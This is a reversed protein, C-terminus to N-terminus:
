ATNAFFGTQNFVAVLADILLGLLTDEYPQLFRPLRLGLREQFEKIKALAQARKQDSNGSGLALEALVVAIQALLIAAPGYTLVLSVPSM